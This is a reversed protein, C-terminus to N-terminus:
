YLVVIKYTSLEEFAKELVQQQEELGSSGKKPLIRWYIPLARRDYSLSIMLLNIGGWSTRDLAIYVLGDKVLGEEGLIKETLSVLSKRDNSKGM